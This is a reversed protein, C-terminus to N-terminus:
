SESTGQADLSAAPFPPPPPRSSSRSALFPERMCAEGCCAGCDPNKEMHVLLTCLMHPAYLTGADTCFYYRTYNVRTCMQLMCSNLSCGLIRKMM